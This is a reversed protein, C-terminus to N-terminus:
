LPQIVKRNERQKENKQYNDHDHKHHHSSLNSQPSFQFSKHITPISNKSNM